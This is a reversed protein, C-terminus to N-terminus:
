AGKESLERLSSGYPSGEKDITYDVEIELNRKRINLWLDLLSAILLVAYFGLAYGLLGSNLVFLVLPVWFLLISVIQKVYQRSFYYGGGFPFLIIQALLVKFLSTSKRGMHVIDRRKNEKRAKKRNPNLGM